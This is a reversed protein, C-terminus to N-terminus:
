KGVVDRLPSVQFQTMASHVAKRLEDARERLGKKKIEETLKEKAMRLSTTMTIISPAKENMKIAMNKM